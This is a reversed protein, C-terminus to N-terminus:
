LDERRTGEFELIFDAGFAMAPTQFGTKFDGELIRGVATLSTEATLSYGSMTELRSVCRNDNADRVEGWFRSRGRQRAAESPGPPMRGIMWRLLSQVFGMRGLGIFPRLTPLWRVATGPVAIYTEINPIGTSYYATSVDGWPINGALRPGRGFDVELTKGLLPAPVLNGEKRVLGKGSIGEISTLATGRSVGGGTGGIALTLQTATPLRQKLHAALCDTPVVDMGMGPLLMVGANEARQDLAALAEFVQIEGTIDIYHRGLRMCAEVMPLYTHSFPGACNLVLPVGSLAVEISRSDDVSARRYDLGLEDAQAELRKENRGSLIPKLGRCAALNAILSGTYGYSGYLLFPPTL